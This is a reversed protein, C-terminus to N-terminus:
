KMDAGADAGMDPGMAQSCFPPHVDKGLHGKFSMPDAPMGTQTVNLTVSSKLSHRGMGAPHGKQQSLDRIDAGAISIQVPGAAAGWVGPNGMGDLPYIFLSRQNGADCSIQMTMPDQTVLRVSLGVKVPKGGSTATVTGSKWVTDDIPANFVLVVAADAPLADIGYSQAPMKYVWPDSGPDGIGVQVLQFPEVTFRLLMDARADLQLKNGNRDSLEPKLSVKYSTDPELAYRPDDMTNMRMELAPGYAFRPDRPAPSKDSGTVDLRKTFGSLDGCPSPPDCSLSIVSEDTLKYNGATMEPAVMVSELEMGGIKLPSKNFVTRLIRASDPDPPSKLPGFKDKFPDLQCVDTDKLKADMCDPPASLDTFVPVDKNAGRDLLTLKTLLLPGDPEQDQGDGCSLLGLGLLLPSVLRPIKM